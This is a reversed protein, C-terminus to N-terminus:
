PQLPATWLTQGCAASPSRHCTHLCHTLPVWSCCCLCRACCLRRVADAGYAALATFLREAAEPSMGLDEVPACPRQLPHVIGGGGSGGAVRHPDRCLVGLLAFCLQVTGVMRLLTLWEMGTWEATAQKGVDSSPRLMHIYCGVIHRMAGTAQASEAAQPLPPPTVRSSAFMAPTSAYETSSVLM